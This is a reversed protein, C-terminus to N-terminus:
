FFFVSCAIFVQESYAMPGEFTVGREAGLESPILVKLPSEGPWAQSVEFWFWNQRLSARAIETRVQKAWHGGGM